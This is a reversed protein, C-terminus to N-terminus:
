NVYITLADCASADDNDEVRLYVTYAGTSYYTRTGSRGSAFLGGGCSGQRWTYSSIGGDPDSGIGMLDISEGASVTISPGPSYTRTSQMM